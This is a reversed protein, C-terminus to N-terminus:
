LSIIQKTIGQPYVKTEVHKLSIDKTLGDFLSVGSGLIIPFQTLIVKQILSSELFSRIVSGGDIWVKRRGQTQLNEILEQPNERSLQIDGELSSDIQSLTQSMVIVKMNGYPWMGFSLVKEYTNRGMILTDVSGFFEGMGFDEEFGLDPSGPEAGPLWNLGGNERAIKGDFSTAINVVVEMENM